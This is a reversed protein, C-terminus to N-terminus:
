ASDNGAAKAANANMRKAPPSGGNGDVATAGDM